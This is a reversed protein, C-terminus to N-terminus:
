GRYVAKFENLRAVQSVLDGTKKKSGRKEAQNRRESTVATKPRKVKNNNGTTGSNPTVAYNGNGCVPRM